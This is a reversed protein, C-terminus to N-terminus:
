DVLALRMAASCLRSPKCNVCCIEQEGASQRVSIWMEPM